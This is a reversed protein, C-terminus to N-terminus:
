PKYNSLVKKVVEMQEQTGITIRNYTKDLGVVSSGGGWNIEIDNQLLYKYFNESEEVTKFKILSVNIESELIEYGKNTLFQNFDHKSSIVQSRIKDFFVTQDLVAMGVAVSLYSTNAWQFMKAVQDKIKSNTVIFGLRIGALGFSKSFSRIVVLNEYRDILDIVSLEPRYEHYAEDIVVISEKNNEILNIVQDKELFGIPNNPNALYILTSDKKGTDVKYINNKLSFEQTVNNGYNENSIQYELYSPTFIHTKEGFKKSIAFIAEDAGATLLINQKNLNFKSAIKEILEIPQSHYNNSNKLYSDILSGFKLPVDYQQTAFKLNIM